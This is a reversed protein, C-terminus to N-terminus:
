RDWDIHSSLHASLPAAALCHESSFLRQCLIESLCQVLRCGQRSDLMCQMLVSRRLCGIWEAQAASVDDGRAALVGSMDTKGVSPWPMCALAAGLNAAIAGHSQRVNARHSRVLGMAALGGTLVVRFEHVLLEWLVNLRSWADM